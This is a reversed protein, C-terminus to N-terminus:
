SFGEQRRAEPGAAAPRRIGIRALDLEVRCLEEVDVRRLSRALRADAVVRPDKAIRAVVGALAESAAPDASWGYSVFRGKKSEVLLGARKLDSLHASVTSAALELVATMQCVCLDGERLMAVLRQRVPHALAKHTEVSRRLESM